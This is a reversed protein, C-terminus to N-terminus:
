GRVPCLCWGTPSDSDEYYAEAMGEARCVDGLSWKEQYAQEAFPAHLRWFSLYGDRTAPSPCLPDRHTPGQILSCGFLATIALVLILLLLKRM